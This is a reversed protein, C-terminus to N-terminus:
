FSYGVGVFPGKFAVNSKMDFRDKIEISEYRYGAQAQLGAFVNWVAKVRADTLSDGSFGVYKVSGSFSLPMAPISVGAGLYGMPIVQNFSENVLGAVKGDLIKFSVGIDLDVINDLIEYYPTVDLQNFTVKNTGAAGNSGSFSTDPTYDIRLNPLMPVPHEFYLGIQYASEKDSSFTTPTTKYQFDGSATPSYYDVEAGFGLITAASAASVGLCLALLASKIM